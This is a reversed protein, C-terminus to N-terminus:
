RIVLSSFVEEGTLGLSSGPEPVFLGRQAAGLPGLGCFHGCVGSKGGDGVNVEHELLLM